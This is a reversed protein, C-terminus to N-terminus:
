DLRALADKREAPTLADAGRCIAAAALRVAHEGSPSHDASLTAIATALSEPALAGPLRGTFKPTPGAHDDRCTSCNGCGGCESTPGRHAKEECRLYIAFLAARRKELAAQGDVTAAM